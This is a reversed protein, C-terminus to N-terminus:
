QRDQWHAKEGDSVYPMFELVQFLAKHALPLGHSVCVAGM